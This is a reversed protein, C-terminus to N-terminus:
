TCRGCGDRRPREVWAVGRATGLLGSGAGWDQKVYRGVQRAPEPSRLADRFLRAWQKCGQVCGAMATPSGPGVGGREQLGRLDWMWVVSM